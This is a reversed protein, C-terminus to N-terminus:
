KKYSKLKEKTFESLVLNGSISAQAPLLEPWDETGRWLDSKLAKLAKADYEALKCALDYAASGAAEQNDYIETFLGNNEAWEATQFESANICLKGYASIGLKRQVAPSIVFPGIGISIESLKIASHTTAFCYDMAAALGVGGGVAKGQVVGIVLKPVSRMALIVRAFGMFFARGEEENRISILEDFSAGACFTINGASKLIIVSVRTDDGLKSFAEALEQLTKSPLANHQPTGFIITGIGNDVKTKVFPKEVSDM